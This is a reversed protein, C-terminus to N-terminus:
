PSHVGMTVNFIFSCKVNYIDFGWLAVTPIEDQLIDLKPKMNECQRIKTSQYLILFYSM